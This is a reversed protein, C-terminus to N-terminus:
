PTIQLTGVIVLPDTSPGASTGPGLNVPAFIWGSPGAAVWRQYSATIRYNGAPANAPLQVQATLTQPGFIVDSQPSPDTCNHAVLHADSDNFFTLCVTYFPSDMQVFDLNLDLTFATTGLPVSLSSPTALHITTRPKPQSDFQGASYCKVGQDIAVGDFTTKLLGDKMSAAADLLVELSFPPASGTFSVRSAALSRSVDQIVSPVASWIGGVSRSGALTAVSKLESEDYNVKVDFAVDDRGRVQCLAVVPNTAKAPEPLTEVREYLGGDSTGLLDANLGSVSLEALSVSRSKETCDAPDITKAVANEAGVEIVSYIRRIGGCTYGPINRIYTGISPKGETPYGDGGGGGQNASSPPQKASSSFDLKGDMCGSFNQFCVFVLALGAISFAQQLKHRLSPKM